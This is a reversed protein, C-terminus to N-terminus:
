ISESMQILLSQNELQHKQIWTSTQISNSGIQVDKNFIVPFQGKPKIIDLLSNCHFEIYNSFCVNNKHKYLFILISKGRPIM